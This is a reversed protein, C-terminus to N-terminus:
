YDPYSSPITARVPVAIPLIETAKKCGSFSNLCGFNFNWASKTGEVNSQDYNVSVFEGALWHLERVDPSLGGINHASTRISFDRGEFFVLINSVCDGEFYIDAAFGSPYIPALVSFPILFKPYNAVGISFGDELHGYSGGMPTAKFPGLIKAVDSRSSKGIRIKQVKVALREARKQAFHSYLLIGCAFFLCGGCVAVMIIKLLKASRM